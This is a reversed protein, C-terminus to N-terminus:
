LTFKICVICDTVKNVVGSSISPGLVKILGVKLHLGGHVPAMRIQQYVIM